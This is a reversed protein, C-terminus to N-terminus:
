SHGQHYEDELYSMVSRLGSYECTMEERKKELEDKVENPFYVGDSEMDAITRKVAKYMKAVSVPSMDKTTNDDFLSGVFRVLNARPSRDEGTTEKDINRLERFVVIGFVVFLTSLITTLVIIDLNEM